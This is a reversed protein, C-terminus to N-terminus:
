QQPSYSLQGNKLHAASTYPHVQSHTESLIHRVCVGISMLYDAILARHCRWWVAESCMIATRKRRALALLHEIGARFADTEMYDAYGRFSENRWVTNHSDPQPRRRGGLEPLPAYEIGIEQLSARLADQNFQPHKRSGPFRRVDALAQIENVSLLGLFEDLTRSSHGITWITLETASLPLEARAALM